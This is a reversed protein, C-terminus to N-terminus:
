IIGLKRLAKEYDELAKKMEGVSHDQYTDHVVSNRLIHAPWIFRFEPKRSVLVKLRGGMDKGPLRLSKLAEDFLKDAEVVAHACAIPNNIEANKVIRVWRDRIHLADSTRVGGRSGRGGMFMWVVLVIIIVIVIAAIALQFPTITLEFM